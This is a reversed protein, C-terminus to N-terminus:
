TTVPLFVSGARWSWSARENTQFLFCAKPLFIQEGEGDSANAAGGGKCQLDGPGNSILNEILPYSPPTRNFHSEM